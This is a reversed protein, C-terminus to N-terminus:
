GYGWKKLDRRVQDIDETPKPLEDRNLESITKVPAPPEPGLLNAFRVALPLNAMNTRGLKGPQLVMDRGVVSGSYVDDVESPAVIYEILPEAGDAPASDLLQM